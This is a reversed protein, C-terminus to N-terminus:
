GKLKKEAKFGKEEEWYKRILEMKKEEEKRSGKFKAREVM